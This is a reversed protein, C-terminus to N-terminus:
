GQRKEAILAEIGEVFREMAPGFGRVAEIHAALADGTQRRAGEDGILVELREFYADLTESVLDDPMMSAGDGGKLCLVACRAAMAMAVSTGGGQRPPNLVLDAGTLTDALARDIGKAHVRDKVPKLEEGIVREADADGICVLHVGEHASLIEALRVAFAGRIEDGLRIGVIALVLTAKPALNSRTLTRTPTPLAMGVVGHLCKGVVEEPWAGEAVLRSLAEPEWVCVHRDAPGVPAGGHAPYQIVPVRDILMSQLVATDGFVIVAEPEFAAIQNAVVSPKLVAGDDMLSLWTPLTCSGHVIHDAQVRDPRISSNQLAPFRCDLDLSLGYGQFIKVAYGFRDQLARGVELVQMSPGHFRGLLPTTLFAIRKTGGSAPFKPLVTSPLCKQLGDVWDRYLQDLVPHRRRKAVTDGRGIQANIAFLVSPYISLDIQCDKSLAVLQDLATETRDLLRLLVGAGWLREKASWGEHSEELRDALQDLEAQNLVYNVLTQLLYVRAPDSLTSSRMVDIFIQPWDMPARDAMFPELDERAVQLMRSDLARQDAAPVNPQKLPWVRSQLHLADFNGARRKLHEALMTDAQNFQGSLFLVTSLLKVHPWTGVVAPAAARCYAIATALDGRDLAEQAASVKSLEEFMERAASM